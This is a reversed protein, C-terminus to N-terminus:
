EADEEEAAAEGDKKALKKKSKKKSSPKLASNIVKLLAEDTIEKESKFKTLDPVAPGAIKVIGNKTVAITTFYEAVIESKKDEYIDYAILLEHQTCEQLGMRAKKEEELARTSFPFPGFRKQVESFLSRSVKLKLSYTNETKKYITTRSESQKVKGDGTSVLIDLGYVEGEAFEFTDIGKKKGESPNLIIRKSGDIVNRTQQHSLMDELPKTGYMDAVKSVIETVDWNKNGPKATRIAAESAFWASSILDAVRPEIAADGVVITDALIGAFGDIHAGLSIKVVDGTHLAIEAEPETPLPSLHTAIYNPSVATPFAIGKFVKKGKYVKGTEEELLKDGLVSVDIIKAGDVCAAKVKELVKASIEGAIKYKTLTDPNALTYDVEETDAM